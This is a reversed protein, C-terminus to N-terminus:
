PCITLCSKSSKSIWPCCIAMPQICGSATISCKLINLYRRSLRMVSKILRITYWGPMCRIPTTWLLSGTWIITPLRCTTNQIRRRSVTRGQDSLTKKIRRTGYTSRSQKFAAAIVSALEADDQGGMTQTHQLWAYYASRSVQMFCCMTDVTFEAAQQKIWAYKEAVAGAHGVEQMWATSRQRKAFYAAAKKVRFRVLLLDREETLRAVEKKLRKLEEYLPEDTRETKDNGKPRSYKGIWTHLTNVNLGLDKATQAILQNSENALKVASERFEAKYTNPKEQSM